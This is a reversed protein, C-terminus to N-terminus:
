VSDIQHLSFNKDFVRSWADCLLWIERIRTQAFGKIIEVSIACSPPQM